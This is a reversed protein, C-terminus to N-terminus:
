KPDLITVIVPAPNQCSSCFMGLLWLGQDSMAFSTLPQEHNRGPAGALSARNVANVTLQWSQTPGGEAETNLQLNLFGAELQEISKGKYFGILISSVAKNPIDFGQGDKTVASWDVVPPKTADFTPRKLDHLNAVYKLMSTSDGVANVTTTLDSSSPVLFLMTRAGFGVQTGTGFVVLYSIGDQPKFDAPAYTTSADGVAGFQNLTACMSSGNPKFVFASGSIKGSDFQGSALWGAVDAQTGKAPALTVQNIDTAPNLAHGQIDKTIKDWCITINQGAAAPMPPITLTSTASFNNTQNLALVDGGSGGGSGAAGGTGDGNTNGDGCGAFLSASLVLAPAVFSNLARCVRASSLRFAIRM